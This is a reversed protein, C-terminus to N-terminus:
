LGLRAMMAAINAKMQENEAKLDAVEGKLGQNEAKMAALERQMAYTSSIPGKRYRDATEAEGDRNGVKWTVGANAMMHSNSGAWAVGAHLMMSENKYHAVGLALASDGRYNGYGAMIQTPEYPDYAMPKLASLASSLAGVQRVEKVVNNMSNAVRNLQSGNVADTSTSSIEGPAVNTIKNGGNNLGSSTLSVSGGGNNKITIGNGNTVTTHGSNDMTTISNIGTIDKALRVNLSGNNDSIVGINNASSLKSEDTVGGKVTVKEGLNRHFEGKDGAFDLGAKKLGDIGKKLDGINAGNTLSSSNDAINNIDEGEGYGSAMNVVKNGGNNLGDKTLTVAGTGDKPSGQGAPPTTIAVGNSSVTTTVKTSGMGSTVVVGDATTSTRKTKKDTTVVGDVTLETAKTPNDVLVGKATTQTTNNQSDSVKVNDATLTTKNGFTDTSTVGRGNTLTSHQQDDTTTTVSRLNLDKKIDVTYTKSKDANVTTEVTTNGSDGAKVTTTAAAMSSKLQQVNVADTDNVGAAVNTIKQNNANLGENSIYTKGGVSVGKNDLVVQKNPDSGVTVSDLGKLNKALKVNLNGNENVVGINGNSLKSADAEGGKLELTQGLDKHIAEGSDGKFNLGKKTLDQTNKDIKNDVVKLQDETAAQGNTIKNPDWTRNTLDNVTGSGGNITVKGSNITGNTGNINVANAGEGARIIGTTGDFHVSTNGSGLTVTDKLNVTYTKAKTLDNIEEEVHINKSGKVKTDSAAKVENLQKLNVADSDETGAKVNKIQTNNANFGNNTVFTNGGITLGNNNITTQGTTVSNLGTLDKALKVNLKGNESVVGINNDSLKAKDSVGGVVDLTQGLDKHILDGSDAQFNLGKKTLNETNKDIKNDVVKLQDETAAQGSTIHAPDWSINTLNNVTGNAGNVLVKGANINGTVGDIAVKGANITSNVGNITVANAGNGAKVIGTTGDINVATNGSGLTVTDKLAVTYTKAKTTPDVAEDVDINKSGKVKTNSAAKVDNLQKVNVADNDEVGATVNKIQTNNANFGNATVFQKNNITLGDNNITTQGTTVSNLGTLDKALKVNLKGNESVVGINGDSLKAKDSIGGVVDLTQGLDKHILEGSDAQFNLGKKSNDTVKQDVSQLQDETAAQGNTINNPDWTRNTLNNVTGNAGNVLVKGANINGTVGDIAVKGANITSNVGNITVANAGEGAKVIGKTGDINVANNGSGLTVTDKLAVTYTKAKTVNDVTEDVNINKSGEVKTNSAAKVDNLQKVNVADNDEVGATVNKIQTNNANFGNATVFQKNNITLGDNNITTQGTTVSNLGTLDKALKVNLKGNESVVGINNDSLKSKETIGGVVDLTQGLDKHILEGSDAQFNLGKKTLDTSNDTIKKDVIKLQDETAAQGSTFNKGDWTINTLNNVTGATGNVTVKGSNITGNTGNITVANAGDGAKIIGTTGNINIANNGSGLTVNDKLAVKYTKAQTNPDVTSNVNINESGEVTTNSANKVENLQNLNVADNGDTGAKVNKIQTNNADFGNATVFKKGGITLGENNITTAGTTVSTLGTLEKALKVNLKGNESVVGINNDSLKAKDSTGGVVDLTEGLDKHISTADDGKFNLGKKTLNSGNDTIKKDVVKLQDETAAQGSTINNADWTINTLNNVTGKAGNVLVKGSNINGTVGDIAVNGATITSNTGNITVANNGEGAKVIGKTGDINVATNGSGLTVTDQLGVTYTKAKTLPDESDTVNINKGAKVVTKAAAANNSVEKLQKLNVAHNDETGAKVNTIQTDNANFGNSTVFTNGGITLGNNNITTAGTTVSNLGTLDKALKVNLVGNNNVVGINNESLKSADAQGGSIKLTQGLDKHIATGADGQFNLGKEVIETKTTDIKNDVVKLQDETAAQGNTIAKPNWTRNTLENVTGTTGNITVKGSNIIGNTGNITVANDGTGAKVIGTTGNINIATNGSGLTVEDKLGVTYTKAKTVNDISEDVKINKGEAVKTNAASASNSVEKLQALNVADSDITGRAVNTIKNGGNDLGTKTLSVSANNTAGNSITVGNSTVKTDGVTVSNLGKLDKALRVKLDNSGDSVVGINDEATLKSAETIGGKVNVQEGLKKNIVNGSDAGFKMGKNILEEKTKFLQSGNIADKSTATVAGDKVNTITTGDAGELTVKTKDVVGNNIDYKVARDTLKDVSTKSAINNITVQEKVGAHNKDEVTLSVEGNDNVKYSGDASSNRVLRYDTASSGQQTIQESVKKLQDETAARGSVISTSDWNKNSLNTVYNGTESAHKTNQVTQAGMVVAGATVRGATGDLVVQNNGSGLTVKNNLRLDYKAGETSTAPTTTLKLNDDSVTVKSHKGAEIKVDHLQSGNVADTSTSSVEGAKLNTITTGGQGELTVKNKNVTTGNLDYKVARETLKDLETKSAINNITVTNAPNNPHAEDKVKLDVKNNEVSYSGDASNTNNILRYDTKAANTTKIEDSVKKLQDETAARGSTITPNQVNWEKNDLGTVYNKNDSHKGVRVSGATVSNLGTLDKALKVNLNGDKAVVGINNDSLAGTAGGTIGLTDGLQKNIKVNNDGQFSLGKAIKNTNNTINTTNIDQQEKSALNTLKVQKPNSGDADAVTLTMSGDAAVKYEGNSGAAPNAILRYDTKSLGNSIKSIDVDFTQNDNRTLTLRKGDNSVTGSTVYTNKLGTVEATLGNTGTMNIKGNGNAEYTASGRQLYKDYKAAIRSIDGINAANTLTDGGSQVNTIQYGGANIGTKSMSVSGTTVSNFNANDVTAVTVNDGAGELKINKGANFNVTRNPAKVDKVKQGNVQLEWGQNVSQIAEHVTNKGTDGINTMTITGNQDVKANGGLINKTSKAVNGVANAVGYLQSGNIADTSQANVRGAAVNTITRKTSNNGVSVTSDATGGAYNYQLGNITESATSVPAATASNAGLAVGRVNNVTAKSGLALGENEQVSAESGIAVADTVEKQAKLKTILEPNDKYVSRDRVRELTGAQASVGLAISRSGTAQADDGIAVVNKKDGDQTSLASAERGMAISGYGESHANNGIATSREGLAWAANGAAVSSGGLAYTDNGLAVGSGGHARASNGVAVSNNVKYQPDNQIGSEANNGIAIGDMARTKANNGLAVGNDRYHAAGNGIAVGQIGQSTAHNGIAVGRVYGEGKYNSGSAVYASTGMAVSDETDSKAGQGIAISRAANAQTNTTEDYATYPTGNDDYKPTPNASGIAISQDGTALASHGMALSAKGQASAATGIAAAYQKGAYAQRMMALSNFGKAKAASGVAIAGIEESQAYHGLGIGLARSQSYDGISIGSVSGDKARANAKNGIQIGFVKNNTYLHGQGPNGPTKYDYMNITPAGPNPTLWTVGGATYEQRDANAPTLAVGRDSEAQVGSVLGSGCTLVMAALGVKVSAKASNSVFSKSGRTHSKAIESVVVYAGRVQSWIVRYIRNM